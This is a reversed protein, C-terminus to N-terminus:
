AEWWCRTNCLSPAVLSSYLRDALLPPEGHQQAHTDGGGAGSFLGMRQDVSWCWSSALRSALPVLWEPAATSVWTWAFTALQGM